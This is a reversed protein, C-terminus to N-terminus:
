PAPSTVQLLVTWTECLSTAFGLTGLVALHSLSLQANVKGTCVLYGNINCSPPSYYVVCLRVCVCVCVCMLM